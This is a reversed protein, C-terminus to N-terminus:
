MTQQQTQEAQQEEAQRQEEALQQNRTLAVAVGAVLGIAAGINKAEQEAQIRRYSEEDDEDDLLAGAAALGYLGAHLPKLSVSEPHQQGGDSHRVGDGATSGRHATGSRDVQDCRDPRLGSALGAMHLYAAREGEWGTGASRDDGGTVEPDGGYQEASNDPRHPIEPESSVGADRAIGARHIRDKEDADDTGGAASVSHRHTHGSFEAGANDAATHARSPETGHARGHIIEERIRFEYNMNEKLYKDGFLLRDRCQWGSPTTYTINRRSKEWRIKYGESEMLAIFEDRNSAHRMCDNIVNMLHLKKSRGRAATHYEGVTM